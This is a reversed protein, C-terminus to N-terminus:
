PTAAHQSIFRRIEAATQPMSWLDNHGAGALVELTARAGLAAAVDQAHAVGISEDRQGHIILVPSAVAPLDRETEFRDALLWGVPLSMLEDAVRRISTYPSLLVVAAPPEGSRARAAAVHVAVGTGLSQGMLVLRRSAVGLHEVQALADSFLAEQAPRGGSGDYGRYAWVAFGSATGSVVEHLVAVSNSLAMANGGFFLVVPADGQADRRVGVLEIGDAVRLSEVRGGYASAVQEVHARTLGTPHYIPARLCGGFVLALSTGIAM